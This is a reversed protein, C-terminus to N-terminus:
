IARSVRVLSVVGSFNSDIPDPNLNKNKVFHTKRTFDMKVTFIINGSSKSYGPPPKDGDVLHLSQMITNMGLDVKDQWMFKVADEDLKKAEKVLLPFKIGYKIYMHCNRKEHFIANCRKKYPHLPGVMPIRTRRQDSQM